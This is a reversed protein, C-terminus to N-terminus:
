IVTNNYEFFILRTTMISLKAAKAYCVKERVEHLPKEFEQAIKPGSDATAISEDKTQNNKLEKETQVDVNGKM